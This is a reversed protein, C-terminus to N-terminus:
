GDLRMQHRRVLGDGFARQRQEALFVAILDADDRHAHAVALALGAVSIGDLEAAARMHPAGAIDAQELDDLSLATAEPTRRM